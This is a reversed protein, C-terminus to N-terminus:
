SEVKTYVTEFHTTLFQAINLKVREVDNRGLLSSM